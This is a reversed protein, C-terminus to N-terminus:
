RVEVEEVEYKSSWAGSRKANEEAVFTDARARDPTVFVVNRTEIAGSRDYDEDFSTSIVAFM